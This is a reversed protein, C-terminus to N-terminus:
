SQGGKSQFVASGPWVPAPTEGFHPFYSEYFLFLAM